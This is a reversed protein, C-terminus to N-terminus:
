DYLFLAGCDRCIGKVNTKSEIIYQILKAISAICIYVIYEVVEFCNENYTNKIFLYELFKGCDGCFSIILAFIAILFVLRFVISKHYETVFALQKSGCNPCTIPHIKSREEEISIKM